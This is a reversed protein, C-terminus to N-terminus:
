YELQCVNHEDGRPHRQLLAERQVEVGLVEAHAQLRRDPLGGTAGHPVGERAERLRATPGRRPLSFKRLHCDGLSPYRFSCFPHSILRHLYM